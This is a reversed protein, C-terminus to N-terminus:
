PFKYFIICQSNCSLVPLIFFKHFMKKIMKIGQRFCQKHENLLFPVNQVSDTRAAVVRACRILNHVRWM